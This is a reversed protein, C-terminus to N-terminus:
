EWTWRRILYMIPIMEKFLGKRKATDNMFYEVSYEGLLKYLQDMTLIQNPYRSMFNNSSEKFRRQANNRIKSEIRNTMMNGLINATVNHLQNITPIQNPYRSM